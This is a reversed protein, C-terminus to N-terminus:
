RDDLSAPLHPLIVRVVGRRVSTMAWTLMAVIDFGDRFSITGTKQFSKPEDRYPTFLHLHVVIDGADNEMFGLVEGVSSDRCLVVKGRSVEGCLLTASTAALVSLLGLTRPTPDHLFVPRTDRRGFNQAMENLMGVCISKESDRFAWRGIAKARRHKREGALCGIVKGLWRLNDPLHLLHHFKPKCAEEGYLRVFLDAHEDVMRRLEEYRSRTVEVAGHCCCGIISRVLEFCRVHLPLKAAINWFELFTYVLDIVLLLEAVFYKVNESTLFKNSFWEDKKSTPHPPTFRDAFDQIKSLPEDHAVLVDLLLSTETGAVGGSVLTHAWDRLYHDVPQLIDRVDARFLVGQPNYNIGWNTELAEFDAKSLTSHKSKLDDALTYISSNTHPVFQRLDPCCEPRWYGGTRYRRLAANKCSICFKIGAAGKIDYSDKLGKEDGANGRFRAAFMLLKGRVIIKAGSRFTDGRDGFFICLIRARLASLGGPIIGLGRTPTSRIFGFPFWWDERTLLHSPLELFFWYIGLMNRGQDPRLPNGIQFADDYIVIDLFKKSCNDLMSEVLVGFEPSRTSLFWLLALPHIYPWQRYGDAGLDMQQVVTGFPTNTEAAAHCESLVVQELARNTGSCVTALDDRLMDTEALVKLMRCLGKVSSGAAAHMAALAGDTSGSSTSPQGGQKRKGM